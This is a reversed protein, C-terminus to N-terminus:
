LSANRMACLFTSHCDTVAVAQKSFARERDEVRSDVRAERRPRIESQLKGSGSSIM